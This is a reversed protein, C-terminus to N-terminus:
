AVSRYTAVSGSMVRQARGAMVLVDLSKLVTEPTATAPISKGLLGFVDRATMADGALEDLVNQVQLHFPGLDPEAELETVLGGAVMLMAKGDILLTSGIMEQTVVVRKLDGTAIRLALDLVSQPMPVRQLAAQQQTVPTNPQHQIDNSMNM